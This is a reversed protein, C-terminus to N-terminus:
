FLEKRSTHRCTTSLFNARALQLIHQLFDHVAILVGFILIAAIIYIM